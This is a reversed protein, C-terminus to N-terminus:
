WGLASRIEDAQDKPVMALIVRTTFHGEARGGKRYTWDIIRARDIAVRQGLHFQPDLPVNVLEGSLKGGDDALEGAWIFEPEEDSGLNFKVQFGEEDAAPSKMREFFAPLSQRGQAVAANMAEDSAEVMVVNRQGEDQAAAAGPAGIALGLALSALLCKQFM